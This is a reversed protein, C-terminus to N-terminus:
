GVREEPKIDEACIFLVGPEQLFEDLTKKRLKRHFETADELSDHEYVAYDPGCCRCTVHDPDHGFRNCFIARAEVEPAEIFIHEYKEKAGGGSHMDMFHTVEIM